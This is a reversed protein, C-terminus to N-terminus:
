SRLAATHSPKPFPVSIRRSDALHGLRKAALADYNRSAKSGGDQANSSVFLQLLSSGLKKLTVVNPLKKASPHMMQNQFLEGAM